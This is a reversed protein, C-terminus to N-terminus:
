RSRGLIENLKRADEPTLPKPLVVTYHNPDRGTKVVAFGADELAERTAISSAKPLPFAVLDPAGSYTTSIGYPFGAKEAAEAKKALDSTKEWSNGWRVLVGNPPCSDGTNHVLWQGEGVFFTHAQEVTLNYMELVESRSVYVSVM